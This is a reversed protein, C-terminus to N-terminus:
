AKHTDADTEAGAAARALARDLAAADESSLFRDPDHILLLGGDLKAVGSVVEDPAFRGDPAFTGLAEVESLDLARDVRLALTRGLARFVVFHESSRLARAPLGLRGRVDLVPVPTGRLDVLGAVPAPATPLPTPLAARLVEDVRDAPLALKQGELEFVLLATM